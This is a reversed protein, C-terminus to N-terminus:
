ILSKTLSSIKLKRSPPHLLISKKFKVVKYRRSLSDYSSVKELTDVEFKRVKIDVEISDHGENTAAAFKNLFHRETLYFDDPSLNKCSGIRNRAWYDAAVGDKSYIMLWYFADKESWFRDVISTSDFDCDIFADLVSIPNFFQKRVYSGGRWIAEITDVNIPSSFIRGRSSTDGCSILNIIEDVDIKFGALASSVGRGIAVKGKLINETAIHHDLGFREVFLPEISHSLPAHGIDHLLAAAVIKIRDVAAFGLKKAYHQALLAVGISHDFRNHRRKSYAPTREVAGLFSIGKLRQFAATECISVIEGDEFLRIIDEHSYKFKLCDEM